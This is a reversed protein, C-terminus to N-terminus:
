GAGVPMPNTFRMAEDDIGRLRLTRYDRLYSQHVQWPFRSGQKPFEHHSRIVYGSTLGLLPSRTITPDTNVPTCQRLGAARLRNVLRTVYRCTLDCKLTWSANTYREVTTSTDTREATLHWRGEASSWDAAVVRHHFRIHRDIGEAAATDRIYRLIAPGDAIADDDDWPRFSYGLTFMDSDSRVGPYRFLDWTGGIAGRSELIAYSAWPCEAQLHHGAGIGSLGAGAVLVDLHETM